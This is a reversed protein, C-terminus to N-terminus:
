EKNAETKAEIENLLYDFYFRKVKTRLSDWHKEDFQVRDIVMGKATYLVFDCWTQTTLALQMQVQDYYTHNINIKLQGETSIISPNKSLICIDQPDLNKYEESCKVELIGYEGNCIVKGDPTAGFIFNVPDIVLGCSEINISHGQLKMFKEYNRIAIPEYYKGYSLKYQLIKNKADKKNGFIMNHALTKFGKETKPGNSGLRNVLSATFRNERFKFWDQSSAQNRTQEEIVSTAAIDSELASLLLVKNEANIKSIEESIVDSNRVFPFPPYVYQNEKVQPTNKIECYVVFNPPMLSCQLSLTSGIPMSGYSTAIQSVDQDINMVRLIPLNPNLTTLTEKLTKKKSFNLERSNEGRAYLSSQIGKRSQTSSNQDANKYKSQPSVLTVESIPPKDVRDHAQPVSWTCPRSTCAQIEPIVTIRDVIWKAFLKLIAFTHACTGAKGAACGCFGYNVDATAKEIVVFVWRVKKRLSAAVVGKIAFLDATQKTYISNTDVYQEELLQDGRSFHKKVLTSKTTVAANVRHFYQEIKESTFKPAGELSKVWGDSSDLSHLDIKFEEPIVPLSASLLPESLVKGMSEAKRKLLKKEPTPDCIYSHTGIKHYHLVRVQFDRLSELNRLTDGRYILWQRLHKKDYNKIRDVDVHVAPDAIDEEELVVDSPDINEYIMLPIEKDINDLLALSLDNNLSM